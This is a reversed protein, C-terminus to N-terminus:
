SGLTTNMTYTTQTGKPKIVRDLADATRRTEVVIQKCEAVTEATHQAITPLHSLFQNQAIMVDQLTMASGQPMAGDGRLLGIITDLKTPVQSIYFNQTNIGAALGLISEESATAIDRSIGTLNSGMGRVSLGAQSLANMLNNMGVDINDIAQNTMNAVKTAESMDFIGDSMSKDIEDFVDELASAIVRAAFSEVIMNQIMDQFKEKMADTTSGFEKYADIWANAFDRAASTLDTGLFYESLESQMDKINDTAERYAEEYEKIKEEDAKKGKSRELDAQKLYAEQQAELNELQQQYNRIYDTGFAKEQAKQLRDYAYELSALQGELREIENDIRKVRVNAIAQVASIIASVALLIWGIPNSALMSKISGDFLQVAIQAFNFAKSVGGLADSIGSLFAGFGTDESIGLTDAFSEVLQQAQSFKDSLGSLGKQLKSTAKQADDFADTLDREIQAILNDDGLERAFDLQRQIDQINAIALKYEKVADSIAELPNRQILGDYLKKYENTLTKLQEPTLDEQTDIFEKLKTMLREITPTALNELDEFSKAWDESAKFEEIAIDALERDRRKESAEILKAKEDDDYLSEEINKREAIQREVVRTKREEYTMFDEYSKQLDTLIDANAKRWNDVISQANQRQEEPLQEVFGALVNYDWKNGGLIAESIDVGKFAELIQQTMLRQLDDGTTGYVSMTLTASLERDGTMGLMRDFFEKATKTRSLQDSLYRLDDELQRKAEDADFKGLKYELELIQERDGLKRAQELARELQARMEYPSMAQSLYELSVNGFMQEISARADEEHMYKRLAQYEKYIKEVTALEKNLQEIRPNKTTTTRSSSVEFFQKFTEMLFNLVEIEKETESIEDTYDRVIGPYFESARSQITRYEELKTTLASLSDEIGSAWDKTTTGNTMLHEKVKDMSIGVQSAYSELTTQILQSMDSPVLSEYEEQIARIYARLDEPLAEIESRFNDFFIIGGEPVSAFIDSLEVFHNRWAKLSNKIIQQQGEYTTSDIGANEESITDKLAEYRQQYDWVVNLARSQTDELEKIADNFEGYYEALDKISRGFGTWYTRAFGYYSQDVYFLDDVVRGTQEQIIDRITRASDEISDGFRLRGEQMAKDLADFVRGIEVSSFGLDELYEKVDTQADGISEVYESTITSMKQEYIQANIKNRIANTVSEYGEQLKILSLIEQDQSPLLDGYSRKLEELAERQMKSGDATERIVKALYEFNRIEQSIQLAGEADIKALEENLRKSEKWSSYLWSALTAVATILIGIANTKIFNGVAKLSAAVGKIGKASERAARALELHEKAEEALAKNGTQRSMYAMARALSYEELAKNLLRQKSILQGLPKLVKAYGLAAGISWMAINGVVRWNEALSKITAIVGTMIGNIEETRGMEDYMISFSDKLNSIQGALTEAQKEQMKYFMGGASTMDDFIDKVQEFSIARESILQMVDAASITEGRLKSMKEALEEVIPIGAETLQRVESARLYGTARIQGYALVLREMGVGLGASIDALRQTTEFLEDQEIKYAALQKTYTVLDKIEFPSKVAAAKIQEFLTNAQNLDGIISGLAVRQLEFEKTVAVINRLFGITQHMSAYALMRQVLRQLYTIQTRYASNQRETAKTARQKAATAKDEVSVASRLTSTYGTAELTLARYQERLKTGEVGARQSASLKNWEDNLKKLEARLSKTDVDLQIPTKGLEKQIKTIAKKGDKIAVQVAGDLDFGIEFILKEDAM